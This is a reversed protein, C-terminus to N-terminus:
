AGGGKPLRELRCRAVRAAPKKQAGPTDRPRERPIGHLELVARHRVVPSGQGLRLSGFAGVTPPVGGKGLQAPGAIGSEAIEGAHLGVGIEARDHGIGAEIRKASLSATALLSPEWARPPRRRMRM